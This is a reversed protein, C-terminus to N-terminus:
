VNDKKRSPDSIGVSTDDTDRDFFAWSRQWRPTRDLRRRQGRRAQRRAALLERAQGREETRGGRRTGMGRSERSGRERRDRARGAGVSRATGYSEKIERERRDRARGAGVSETTRMVVSDGM